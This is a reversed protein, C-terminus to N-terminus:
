PARPPAPPSALARRAARRYWFSLGGQYLLSALIVSALVLRYVGAVADRLAAEDLVGTADAYGQLIRRISPALAELAHASDFTALRFLSYALIAALLLLQSGPLLTGARPDGDRLARGGRVEMGGSLVALASVVFGAGDRSLLSVVACLSALVLVGGGNMRSIALVRRVARERDDM